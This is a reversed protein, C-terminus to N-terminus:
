YIITSRDKELDAPTVVTGGNGDLDFGQHYWSQWVLSSCYFRLHNNKGTPMKYPDGIQKKAWKQADTYNDSTAGKVYMKKKSNFRNKWNNKYSRVGKKPWAEVIYNNNKQVIAAHGHRWGSTKNDYTILIDGNTGMEGSTLISIEQSRMIADYKEPNVQKLEKLEKELEKKDIKKDKLKEKEKLDAKLEKQQEQSFGSYDLNDTEENAFVSGMPMLLSVSLSSVLLVKSLKKFEM